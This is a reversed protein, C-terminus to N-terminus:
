PPSATSTTATSDCRRFMVLDRGFCVEDGDLLEIPGRIRTGRVYTGNKSGLDELVARGQTVVIRAHRRSVVASGISLALGPTRGILNEGESLPLEQDDWLLCCAAKGPPSPPRLAAPPEELTAQPVPPEVYTVPAVLRYGRKVITEIYSPETADDGLVGRLEAVSRSLASDAVYRRAWVAEIIEAKAVVEVNHQALYCLIDMLRPRIHVRADGRVLRNLSPQVLWEGLRFERTEM